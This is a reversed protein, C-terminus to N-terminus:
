GEQREVSTGKWPRMGAGRGEADKETQRRLAKGVRSRRTGPHVGTVSEGM